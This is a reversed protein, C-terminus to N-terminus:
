PLKVLSYNPDTSLIGYNGGQAQTLEAQTPARVNLVQYLFQRGAPTSSNTGALLQQNYAGGVGLVTGNTLTIAPHNTALLWLWLNFFDSERYAYSSITLAPQSQSAPVTVFHINLLPRQDNAMIDFELSAFNSIGQSSDWAVTNTVNAPVNPGINNAGNNTFSSPPMLVLDRFDQVGNQFAVLATTVTAATAQVTYAIDVLTTGSEQQVSTIHPAPAPTISLPADATQATGYVRPMVAVATSGASLGAYPQTVNLIAYLTGNSDFAPAGTFQGFFPPAVATPYTNLAHRGLNPQVIFIFNATPVGALGDPSVSISGTSSTPYNGTNVTLNTVFAGGPAFVQLTANPMGLPLATCFNGDPLPAISAILPFADTAGQGNTWRQFDVGNGFIVEVSNNGDDAVYVLFNRDVALAVPSILSFQGFTRQYVNHYFQQVTAAGGNTKAIAYVTGNADVAIASATETQGLPTDFGCNFNVTLGFVAEGSATLAYVNGDAGTCLNGFAAGGTVNTYILQGNFVWHDQPMQGFLTAPALHWLLCLVASLKTAKM